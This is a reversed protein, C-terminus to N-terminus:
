LHKEVLEAVLDAMSVTEGREYSEKLSAQKLRKHTDVALNVSLRVKKGAPVQGSRKKAVQATAFSGVKATPLIPKLTTKKAAKKKAAM